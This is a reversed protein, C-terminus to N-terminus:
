FQKLVWITIGSSNFYLLRMADWWRWVQFKTIQRSWCNWISANLGFSKSRCNEGKMLLQLFPLSLSPFCSTVSGTCSLYLYLCAGHLVVFRPIWDDVDADDIPPPEGPLAAWRQLSFFLLMNTSFRNPLYFLSTCVSEHYVLPPKSLWYLEFTYIALYVLRGCYKM